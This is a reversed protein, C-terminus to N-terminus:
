EEVRDELVMDLMPLREVQEQAEVVAAVAVVLLALKVLALCVLLLAMAAMVQIVELGAAVAAAKKQPQAGPEAMAAPIRAKVAELEVLFIPHAAVAALGCFTLREV